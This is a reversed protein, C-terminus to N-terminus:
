LAGTERQGRPKRPPEFWHLKPNWARYQHIWEGIEDGELCTAFRGDWFVEAREGSPITEYIDITDM